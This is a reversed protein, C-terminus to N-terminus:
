NEPSRWSLGLHALAWGGWTLLGFITILRFLGQAMLAQAATYGLTEGLYVSYAELVGLSGPTLNLVALHTQGATYFFVGGVSLRIGYATMTLFNIGASTLVILASIAILRAWLGKASSIIRWGTVLRAPRGRLWEGKLPLKGLGALLLVGAALALIFYLALVPPIPRTELKLLILGILGLAAATVLILVAVVGGQALYDALSLNYKKKLYLIRLGMGGRFPTLFNGLGALCSLAMAERPKLFVHHAKLAQRTLEANLWFFFSVLGFLPLLRSKPLGWLQRFDELHHNLYWSLWAAFAGMFILALLTRGRLKGLRGNNGASKPSSSTM